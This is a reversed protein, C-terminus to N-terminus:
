AARVTAVFINVENSLQEAQQSLDSASNLVQTAATGTDNAAHSVGSINSTVQQTSASTTQVNRAIEATAAGQEEVASAITTAIASVEEITETISRIAEVAEKTAGQIQAIQTAIEDTAKATQQALNKVESAVVAFGKGADGARAAEITANLALLNTQEAIRTILGVVDGIKQAGEALTQVVADTRRADKAATGTMMASQTVQRSIEGISSTLQEASAAVTQVGVSAQEAAAAVSAAQQNTQTATASMSQATSELETSAAALLGTMQGIKAEFERVTTDMRTSREEKLKIEKERETGLQDARVANDRFVEVARAMDGIEDKGDRAPIVVTTDGAALKSMASTMGTIPGVIGRSITIAAVTGLLVALAGFVEQLLAARSMLAQTNKGEEAFGARLSTEAVGLTGQMAIIGARLQNHYIEINRLEAESYVRFAAAYAELSIRIPQLLAQEAPSGVKEFVAISANALEVNKTFTAPGNQDHTAMFRWNAACVLLVAANIKGAAVAVSPESNASTEMLRTTAATLHDGGSFLQKQAAQTVQTSKVFQENLGRHGVLWSRVGAYAQRRDESLSTTVAETLLSTAAALREEVEKRASEDGDLRYRTEARRMAEIHGASTLVRSLNNAMIDLRTVETKVNTLQISGFAAVGLSIAVVTIFGAYLRTRITLNRLLM